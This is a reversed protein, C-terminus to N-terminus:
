PVDLASGLRVAWCSLATVETVSFSSIIVASLAVRRFM